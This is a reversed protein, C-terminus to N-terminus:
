IIGKIVKTIDLRYAGKKYLKWRSATNVLFVTEFNQTEFGDAQMYIRAEDTAFSLYFKGLSSEEGLIVPLKKDPNEMLFLSAEQWFSPSAFNVPEPEKGQEKEM